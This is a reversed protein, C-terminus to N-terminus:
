NQENLLNEIVLNETEILADMTAGGIHPLIHLMGKKNMKLLEKNIKNPNQENKFVDLYASSIIKKKIFYILDKENILEGRSTNVITPKKLCFKMNRKNLLDRNSSTYNVNLSIIDSFKLLKRFSVFSSNTNKVREKNKYKEYILVKFGLKELHKSLYKGIRGYGIIGCTLKDFQFTKYNYRDLFGKKSLYSYELIKRSANLILSLTYQSTSYIREIKKKFKLLNIIEINNRKLYDLDLHNIGTTPTVVKKLNPYKSLFKKDLKYNLRTFIITVKQNKINKNYQIQYKSKVKNLNNSNLFKELVLINM